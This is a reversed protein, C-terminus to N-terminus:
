KYKGTKGDFSKITKNNSCTIADNGEGPIVCNLQHNYEFMTTSLHNKIMCYFPTYEITYDNDFEAALVTYGIYLHNYTYNWRSTPPHYGSM